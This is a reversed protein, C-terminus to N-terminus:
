TDEDLDLVKNVNEIHVNRKGVYKFQGLEVGVNEIKCDKKLTVSDTHIRVVLDGHQHAVAAITKRARSLLFPALRPYAGRYTYKKALRVKYRTGDFPIPAGIVDYTDLDIDDPEMIKEFVGRSSLMGWICSAMTKILKKPQLKQKKLMYLFPISEKFLSRGVDSVGKVPMYILANPKGDCIL